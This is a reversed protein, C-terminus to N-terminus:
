GAAMQGFLSIDDDIVLAESTIDFSLAFRALDGDTIVSDAALLPRLDIVARASNSAM